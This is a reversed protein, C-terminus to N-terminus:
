SRQEILDAFFARYQGAVTAWAFRKAAYAADDARQSAPVQLAASMASVLAAESKADVLGARGEYIWRTVDEDHAVVPLGCAMAEVYINGFSEGIAPHLLINASRYLNPMQQHSFSGRRYRGPMLENGLADLQDRLGGDGAIVCYVGPLKAVARLGEIVRKGAEAACVMLVVPVGAPLGLAARDAPGPHFRAPDIGNPILASRWRERNRNWYLPNTCVLGDCSFYRYESTRVHAPWDGNQTVFVHLPKRKAGGRARLAWNTYPYGCTVTIDADRSAGSLMLRSAFTFEEYMMDNRFFPVSPWNEFRKRGVMGVREFRYACDARPEGSGILTIEDRGGLALEQAVSEFAVEAGRRVNHLGALAFQIRL